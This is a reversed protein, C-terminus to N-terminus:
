ENSEKMYKVVACSVKKALADEYKDARFLVFIFSNLYTATLVGLVVILFDAIM